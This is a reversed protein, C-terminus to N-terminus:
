VYNSNSTEQIDEWVNGTPIIVETDATEEEWLVLPGCWVVM